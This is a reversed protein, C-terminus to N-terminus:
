LRAADFTAASSRINAAPATVALRLSVVKISVSSARLAGGEERACRESQQQRALQRRPRPGGDHRLHRADCRECSLEPVENQSM